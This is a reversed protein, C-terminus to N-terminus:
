HRSANVRAQSNPRTMSEHKSGREKYIDFPSSTRDTTPRYAKIAADKSDLFTIQEKDLLYIQVMDVKNEENLGALYQSGLFERLGVPLHHYLHKAEKVYSVM